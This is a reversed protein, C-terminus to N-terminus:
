PSHRSEGLEVWAVRESSISWWNSLREAKFTWALGPWPGHCPRQLDLFSM